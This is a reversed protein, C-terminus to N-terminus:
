RPWPCRLVGLIVREIEDDTLSPHVPLSVITAHADDTAPFRGPAGTLRHLPLHVPRRAEIGASNLSEMISAADPVRMLYRTVAPRSDPPAAPRTVPLAAFAADYRAAIAARRALFAPLRDIQRCAIAAHLDGMLGNVRPRDTQKEDHGALDRVTRVLTAAPAALAGGPGGCTIMKTPAFSFVAADGRAGVPRNRDAAGLAQACDEIVVLGRSRFPDPRSPIGFPHVLIVASAAGHRRVLDEPDLALGRPDIDCLIPEAGAARVGHLLAACGYAPIAVRDRAGIGLARLALTLALTGSALAVADAGGALRAVLSELRAAEPGPALRGTRIVRTAAAEEEAGLCPAGHAVRSMAPLRAPVPLRAPLSM